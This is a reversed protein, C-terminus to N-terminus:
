SLIGSNAHRYVTRIYNERQHHDFEFIWLIGPHSYIPSFKKFQSFNLSILLLQHPRLHNFFSRIYRSFLGVWLQYLNVSYVLADFIQSAWAWLDLVVLFSENSYSALPNKQGRMKLCVRLMSGNVQNVRPNTLRMWAWQALHLFHESPSQLQMYNWPFHMRQRPFITLNHLIWTKHSWGVFFGQLINFKQIPKVESMGSGLNCWERAGSTRVVKRGSIM